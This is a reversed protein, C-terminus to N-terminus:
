SFFSRNIIKRTPTFVFKSFLIISSVKSAYRQSRATALGLDILHLPSM